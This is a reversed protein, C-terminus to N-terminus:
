VTQLQPLYKLIDFGIIKIMAPPNDKAQDALQYILTKIQAEDGSNLVDEIAYGWITKENEPKSSLVMLASSLMSNVKLEEPTLPTFFISPLDVKVGNMTGKYHFEGNRFYEKEVELRDGKTIFFCASTTAAYVISQTKKM